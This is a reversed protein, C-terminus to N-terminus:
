RLIPELAEAADRAAASEAAWESELPSRENILFLVIAGDHLLKAFATQSETSVTYGASLVPNRFLFSRNIVIREATILSRVYERRILSHRLDGLDTLSAGEIQMTRLQSSPVWQDDLAHPLVC